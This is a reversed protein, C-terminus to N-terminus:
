ASGAVRLPQWNLLDTARELVITPALKQLDAASHAGCGLAASDMNAAKAMEIDFSTDGVMLAHNPHINLEQLIENLMLPNPKSLTQDATKTVAFYPAFGSHKLALELGARGKGTAVALLFGRSQLTQLMKEVGDFPRIQQHCNEEFYQKYATAFAHFDLAMDPYLAWLAERVGLGIIHRYASDALVPAHCQRAAHKLSQVIPAASDVLTGDWDFVILQYTKM